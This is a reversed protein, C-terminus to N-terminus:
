SARSSNGFVSYATLVPQTRYLATPQSVYNESTIYKEFGLYVESLFTCYVHLETMCGNGWGMWDSVLGFGSEGGLEM